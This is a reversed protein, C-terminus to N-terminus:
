KRGLLKVAAIFQDGRDAYNKYQDFSASAPSLIVVDGDHAVEHAKAVIKKMDGHVYVAPVALKHCLEVIIAGTQGIAIVKTDTDRCREIIPTYDSGKNSGGLILVKQQSFSNIAAISSGPTTGISDDFYKVGEFDAVFKLRHPLGEFESIGQKITAPDDVIGRLATLAASLNELNHRGPIRLSPVFDSVDHPYERRDRANSTAAIERAYRNDRHYIVVDDISQHRAINSKAQVYQDFSDHIDLHDAEIPLIISIHPSQELDWLQFSSLEYVIIDDSRVAALADLAPEGINGVVHVSKGAARLILALLSSVTGKGKTGTVGIIPAPCLAFFENTQSWIKGKTKITSPDMPPTRVVMDFYDLQDFADEEIISQAGEPVPYLPSVHDTVITVDHGQAVFYRYSSQGEAGYGAIAIRM